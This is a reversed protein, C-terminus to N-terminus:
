RHGARIKNKRVLLFSFIAVIGRGVGLIIKTFRNM